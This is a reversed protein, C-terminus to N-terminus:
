QCRSRRGQDIDPAWGEGDFHLRGPTFASAEQESVTM